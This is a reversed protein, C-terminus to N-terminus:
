GNEVIKKNPNEESIGRSKEESLPKSHKLLHHIASSSWCRFSAHNRNQIHQVVTWILATLALILGISAAEVTVPSGHVVFGTFNEMM